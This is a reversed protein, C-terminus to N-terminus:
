LEQSGGTGGDPQRTGRLKVMPPGGLSNGRPLSYRGPGSSIKYARVRPIKGANIIINRM